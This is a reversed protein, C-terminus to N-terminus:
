LKGKPSYADHHMGVCVQMNTDVIHDLDKLYPILHSATLLQKLQLNASSSM